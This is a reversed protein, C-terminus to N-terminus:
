IVPHASKQQTEVKLTIVDRDCRALLYLVTVGHIRELLKLICTPSPINKNKGSELNQEWDKRRAM